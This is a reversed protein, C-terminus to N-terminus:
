HPLLNSPAGISCSTPPTATASLGLLYGGHVHGYLTHPNTRRDLWVESNFSKLWPVQFCVREM